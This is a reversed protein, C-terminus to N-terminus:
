GSPTSFSFLPLWVRAYTGSLLKEGSLGCLESLFWPYNQTRQPSRPSLSQAGIMARATRTPKRLAM